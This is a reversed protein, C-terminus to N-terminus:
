YHCSVCLIPKLTDLWKDIHSALPFYAVIAFCCSLTGIRNILSMADERFIRPEIALRM